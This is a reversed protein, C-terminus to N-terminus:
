HSPNSGNIFKSHINDPGLLDSSFYIVNLVRVQYCDPLWFIVNIKKWNNVLGMRFPRLVGSLTHYEKHGLISTLLTDWKNM